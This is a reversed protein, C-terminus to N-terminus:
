PKGGFDIDFDKCIRQFARYGIGSLGAAKARTIGIAALARLREAHAAMKQPTLLRDGIQLNQAGRAADNRYKFGGNSAITLLNRRGRGTIRAVEAVSHDASLQKIREIDDPTAAGPRPHVFFDFGHTIAMTRLTTRAIGTERAVEPATMTKAMVIIQPLLELRRALHPSPVPKRPPKQPKRRRVFERPSPEPHYRRPPPTADIAPLTIVSGGARLFHDAASSLMAREANKAQITSLELSIM